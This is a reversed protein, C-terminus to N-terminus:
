HESKHYNFFEEMVADDDGYNYAIINRLHSFSGLDLKEFIIGAGDETLRVVKGQLYIDFDDDGALHIVIEVQDGDQLKHTTKIYTGKLSLNEICGSYKRGSVHIEVEKKFDVRSFNRKEIVTAVNREM